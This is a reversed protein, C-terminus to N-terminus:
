SATVTLKSTNEQGLVDECSVTLVAGEPADSAVDVALDIPLSALSLAATDLAEDVTSLEAYDPSGLLTCSALETLSDVALWATDGPSVTSTLGTLAPPGAVTVALQASVGGGVTARLVSRGEATGSIVTHAQPTPDEESARLVLTGDAPVVAGSPGVEALSVTAGLAYPDTSHVTVTAVTSGDSPLVLEGDEDSSLHLDDAHLDPTPDLVLEVTTSNFGGLTDTAVVELFTVELSDGEVESATDESSDDNSAPLSSVPITLVWSALTADTGSDKPIAGFGLAEVELIGRGCPHSTVGSLSVVDARVIDDSAVAQIDPPCHSAPPAVEECASLTLLTCCVLVARPPLTSKPRMM